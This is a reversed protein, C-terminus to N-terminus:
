PGSVAIPIPMDSIPLPSLPGPITCTGAAGATVSAAALRQVELRYRTM